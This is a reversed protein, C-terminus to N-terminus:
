YFTYLLSLGLVDMSSKPQFVNYVTGNSTVQVPQSQQFRYSDYFGLVSWHADIRYGLSAYASWDKGPTLTPNQDFGINTLYGNQYTYFPYKLGVTAIWGAKHPQPALEAGFRAYIVAWDEMQDSSFQRRWLDAGLALVGDLHESGSLAFRYRVQGDNLVGFYNTKGTLPAGTFLEAGNYNVQGGYVKGTYGFLLGREKDQMWILGGLLLPGTEQVTPSTDEKWDFYEVGAYVTLEARTSAALLLCVILSTLIAARQM